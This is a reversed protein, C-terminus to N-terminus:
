KIEAPKPLINYVQGEDKKFLFARTSDAIAIFIFGKGIVLTDGKKTIFVWDNAFLCDDEHYDYRVTINWMKQLALKITKATDKTGDYFIKITSDM